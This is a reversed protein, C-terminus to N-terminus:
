KNKVENWFNVVSEYYEEKIFYNVYFRIALDGSIWPYEEFSYHSIGLPLYTNKIDEITILRKNNLYDFTNSCNKYNSLGSYSLQAKHEHIACGERSECTKKCRPNVILEIKNKNKIQKLFDLDDNFDTPIEILSFKKLDILYNLLEPTFPNILHAERSFVWKYNPFEKEIKEMLKLNSISINNSGNNNTSVILNGMANTFDIDEELLVNAFNIRLPVMNKQFCGVFDRYYSGKGFNNNVGGNWSCFPFGGSTQIFTIKEKFYEPHEKNLIMIFNNSIFLEYFNPLTFYLM